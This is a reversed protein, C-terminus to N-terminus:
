SPPKNKRNTKQLFAVPPLLVLPYTDMGMSMRRMLELRRSNRHSKIHPYLTIALDIIQKPSLETAKSIDNIREGREFLRLAIQKRIEWRIKKWSTKSSVTM